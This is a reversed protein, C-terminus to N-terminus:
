NVRGPPCPPTLFSKLQIRANNYGEEMLRLSKRPSFTFISKLGLMRSPFVTAIRVGDKSLQMQPSAALPTAHVACEPDFQWSADPLCCQYSGILFHELAIELVEPFTKPLNQRIAGVPSLLVVIIETAGKRLAPLIPTNVMLGADWYPEDEIIQWPFLLPIAGAAMIHDITIVKQNFFKVQGTLINLATIIIEPRCERLKVIDISDTLMKRLLRTDSMPKFKKRGAIMQLLVPLYLKYMQKRYYTEWMQCLKDAPLGSGFAAANIAGVSTGCIIDPQWDIESLYKLVGAQFAGRGGGGSLILGKKM